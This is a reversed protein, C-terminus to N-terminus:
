RSDGSTSPSLSMQVGPPWSARQRGDVLQRALGDPLALHGATRRRRATGTASTASATRATTRTTRATTGTTRATSARGVGRGDGDVEFPLALVHLEGGLGEDPDRGGVAFEEPPIVPGGVALANVTGRRNVVIALHEGGRGIIRATSQHLEALVGVTADLGFFDIEGRLHLVVM